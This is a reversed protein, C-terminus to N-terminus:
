RKLAAAVADALPTTPRGILRRLDGSTDNLEGRAIGQDSDVLLDAYPAPVGAGLLVKRYEEPPLNTYTVSKGSQRAVEAALDAMTFSADGSLEYIKNEHGAGSLVTVAAAAFDARTAAAIRGEGAAGFIKGHALASGLNETYNEIYWGNRLFVFNLKADRIAHETAKHEAALGLGSTEARLVSTYALLAVGAKKAARVVAQHQAARQGVESSSILLVRTAGAFAADLSEPKSYDAQRVQVGRAKLDAAKDPHRVAVAIQGAPLKQLLGGVVLRGLKGTAGTVVIM